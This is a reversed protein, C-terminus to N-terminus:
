LLNVTRAYERLEDRFKPHAISIIAKTREKTTKGWLRAVGYETVIYDVDYRTAAIAAGPTITPVIRSITDNKATSGFAVITRGGKSAFAGRVFDTFGGVGTFQKPGVMDAVVQGLLDVEIASNLSVVNDNQAIVKPDNVYDIPLLLLDDNHDIWEYFEKSGGAFGGVIKGPHVKKYKNTIVGAKVLKMVGDSLMESHIGLDKKDGLLNLVYDPLKGRGLQLCDGDHILDVVYKGIEKEIEGPFSDTLEVMPEDYEVLYDLQDIHIKNNAVYPMQRNIQAITIKAMSPLLCTFDGSIGMSAYGEEDPETIQVLAVDPKLIERMLRPWQHFYCPIFDARNEELAKRSKPVACLCEFHIKDKMEEDLHPEPGINGGHSVRIGGLEKARQTMAQMLYVPEAGFDGPIIMDGTKIQKMAEQVSVIKESYKERWSM